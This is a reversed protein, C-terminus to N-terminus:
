FIVEGILITIMEPLLHGQFRSIKIFHSLPSMSQLRRFLILFDITKINQEKMYAIDICKQFKLPLKIGSSNWITVKSNLKLFPIQDPSRQRHKELQFDGRPQSLRTTLNIFREFYLTRIYSWWSIWCPVIGMGYGDEFEPRGTAQIVSGAVSELWCVIPFFM